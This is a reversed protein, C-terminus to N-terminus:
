HDRSRRNSRRINAGRIDTPTAGFRRRFSRNFHSLDAFGVQFAIDVIKLESMRPDRLLQAALSLRKELLHESFTRGTEELLVHVYRASIGVRGAVVQADLAADNSATEIEHMIAARRVAQMGRQEALARADGEAGLALAVMDMIHTEYLGSVGSSEQLDLQFTGDLYGFLLRRAIADHALKMGAFRPPHPFLSAIKEREIKLSWFHSDTALKLVSAYACDCIVAEGSRVLTEENQIQYAGQGRNWMMVFLGDDGDRVLDPSRWVESPSQWNRSIAISSIRQLEITARFSSQDRTRVDVGVYRRMIEECFAPFRDRRSLADTDFRFRGSM